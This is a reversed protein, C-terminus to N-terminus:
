SLAAYVATSDYVKNDLTAGMGYSARNERSAGNCGGRFLYYAGGVIIVLILLKPNRFLFPLLFGILNGGPFGGGSGGGQNRGQHGDYGSNSDDDDTMRIPM